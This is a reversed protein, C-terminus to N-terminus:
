LLIFFKGWFGLAPHILLQVYISKYANSNSKASLPAPRKTKMFM